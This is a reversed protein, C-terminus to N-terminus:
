FRSIELWKQLIQGFIYQYLIRRHNMGNNSETKEGQGIM